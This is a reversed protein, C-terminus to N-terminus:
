PAHPAAVAYEGRSIELVTDFVVPETDPDMRLTAEVAFRVQPARLQDADTLRVRVRVLRPEFSTLAEEMAGVLWARAEKSSMAMGSADPLGYAFASRAVLAHAPGIEIATRRSNLLWGVDRLVGQRYAAASSEFTVPPDAPTDPADDTLRDLLSPTVSRELGARGAERPYRSAM